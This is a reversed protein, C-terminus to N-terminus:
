LGRLRELAARAQATLTAGPTGRALTALLERADPTAIRELVEVGRLVRLEDPPSTGRALRGLLGEVRRRVEAPVEGQLRERLAPAAVERLRELERTAQERVAYRPAELDAILKRIRDQEPTRAEAPRLREKLLGVAAGPMSVLEGIAGFAEAASPSALEVWLEASQRRPRGAALFTGAQDWLLVTTDASASALLKGDQSYDLCAVPGRHGAYRHRLKGTALEWVSVAYQGDERIASAGALTRGDPSFALATFGAASPLRRLEQGRGADRLIVDQAAAAALVKGDPSFALAPVRGSGEPVHWSEKGTATQWLRVTSIIRGSTRDLYPIAAALFRGHPSFTLNVGGFGGPQGQEGTLQKLDKGSAVDWVRVTGDLASCAALLHGDESFALRGEGAAQVGELERVVKGSTTEALRVRGRAPGGEVAAYKGDPSLAVSGQRRLAAFRTLAAPPLRGDAQLLFRGTERGTASQWRCVTGDASASLVDKGGATFAVATVTHRHGGAPMAKGTRVDWLCLAQGDIACALVRGASLFALGVPLGRQGRPVDVPVWKATDWLRVDGDDGATALLKGDPSFELVPKYAPPASFTRIDKATVTEHVHVMGKSTRVAVTKGDPAVAAATVTVADGPVKFRALEKGRPVDWVQVTRRAELDRQEAAAFGTLHLGWTALVKGDASLAGHVLSNQVVVFPGFQKGTGLEWVYVSSPQRLGRAGAALFKGDPSFALSALRARSGPQEGVRVQQRLRGTTVDWLRIPGSYGVTALTKGDPAFVLATTGGLDKRIHHRQWGTCMDVLVIEVGIPVAVFKGDPSLAAASVFDGFRFRLTGLRAVAGAPLAPEPAAGAAPGAPGQGLAAGTPAAGASLLTLSALLLLRGPHLRMAFRM